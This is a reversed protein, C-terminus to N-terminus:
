LDRRTERAPNRPLTAEAERSLGRPPPAATRNTEGVSRSTRARVKREKGKTKGRFDNERSDRLEIKGEETRKEKLNEM